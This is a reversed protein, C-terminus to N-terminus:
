SAPKENMMFCIGAIKLLSVSFNEFVARNGHTSGQLLIAYLVWKAVPRTFVAAAGGEPLCVQSTYGAKLVM